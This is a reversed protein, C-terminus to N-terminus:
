FEFKNVKFCGFPGGKAPRYDMIGVRRGADELVDKLIAPNPLMMSDYHLTFKVKWKPVKARAKTVGMRQIVVRRLDVEFKSTGLPIEFPEIKISGALITSLSMKTRGEGKVTYPKAAKSLVALMIESPICLERKNSMWYATKEAQEAYTGYKELKSKAGKEIKNSEIAEVHFRNMLLPSLGEIEIEIKKSQM